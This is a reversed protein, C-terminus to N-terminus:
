YYEIEIKEEETEREKNNELENKRSKVTKIYFISTM